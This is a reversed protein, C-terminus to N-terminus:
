THVVHDGCSILLSSVSQAASHLVALRLQGFPRGSFHASRVGSKTFPIQRTKSEDRENVMGIVIEVYERGGCKLRSRRHYVRERGCRVHLQYLNPSSPVHIVETCGGLEKRRVAALRQSSGIEELM